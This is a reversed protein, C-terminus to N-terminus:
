PFLALPSAGGPSGVLSDRGPMGILVNKGEGGLLVNPGSGGWLRDNGAGGDIRTPLTIRPDVMVTDNGAGASVDIRAVPGYTGLVKGDFVVRVTGAHQTPVIRIRDPGPTGEIMLTDGVITVCDAAAVRV